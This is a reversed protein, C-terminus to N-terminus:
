RGTAADHLPLGPRILSVCANDQRVAYCADHLAENNATRRTRANPGVTEPQRDLYRGMEELLEVARGIHGDTALEIARPCLM